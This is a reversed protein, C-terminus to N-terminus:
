KGRTPLNLKRTVIDKALSLCREADEKAIQKGFHIFKNRKGKMDMFTDYELDSLDGSLSLVELLYDTSWQVTNLLKSVRDNDLNKENLKKRWLGSLHREIVSWSMIFSQAYEANNLHTYAEVLLRLEDDMKHERFIDSAAKIIGLVISESIEEKKYDLYIPKGWREEFLVSRITSGKFSYGTIRKSEESYSVDSLEHERVALFELGVLMGVAMITNLVKLAVDKQSIAVFIFGDKNVIVPFENFQTDFAKEDGLFATSRGRLIESATLKPKKGVVIPPFFHVGYGQPIPPHPQIPEVQTQQLGKSYALQSKIGQIRSNAETVYDLQAINGSFLHVWVHSGIVQSQQLGTYIGPRFLDDKAQSVLRSLHAALIEAYTTEEFLHIEFSKREVIKSWRPNNLSSEVKNLFEKSDYPGNVIIELDPRDTFNTKVFLQYEPGRLWFVEIQCPSFYNENLQALKKEEESLGECASRFYTIFNGFWDHLRKSETEALQAM